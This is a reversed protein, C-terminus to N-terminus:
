YLLSIILFLVAGIVAKLLVGYINVQGSELLCSPVLGFLFRNFHPLSLLFTIVFVVLPAKIMNIIWEMKTETYDMFGNGGNGNGDGIKNSNNSSPESSESADLFNKDMKPPPIQSSDMSYGMMETDINSQQQPPEEFDRLIDEVLQSNNQNQPNCINLQLSYLLFCKLPILPHFHYVLFM